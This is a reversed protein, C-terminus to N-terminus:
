NSKLKTNLHEMVNRFVDNTWQPSTQFDLCILVCNKPTYGLLENLQEISAQWQRHSKFVLPVGSIACRCNQRKIQQLYWEETITFEM